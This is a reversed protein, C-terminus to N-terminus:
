PRRPNLWIWQRDPQSYNHALYDNILNADPAEISAGFANIMKAVEAEWGKNTLFPSNMRIYDLSHCAGCNNEVVDHGPGDTLPVPKEEAQAAAIGVVFVGLALLPPLKM